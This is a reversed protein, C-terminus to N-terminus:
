SLRWGYPHRPNFHRLNPRRKLPKKDGGTHTAHISIHFLHYLFFYRFTAVRIPPTSQFSLASAHRCHRTRRWGYPHRPNFYTLGPGIIIRRGDGGTHTAHISIFRVAFLVDNRLTAVRIPPTSQFPIVRHGLIGGTTAVRIPPTSQFSSYMWIGLLWCLRWGYPHRPNFHAYISCFSWSANDGGTHTAHISIRPASSSQCTTMDGGTHTAHISIDYLAGNALQQLDGGTHTAHISIRHAPWVAAPIHDGGTHTAHISISVLMLAGSIKDDGGTHTAHISIQGRRSAHPQARDGGTHTAHISIIGIVAALRRAITAVRIPPTSQFLAAQTKSTLVNQRWGYPHRPNFNRSMTTAMEWHGDGGTHTAHISIKIRVRRAKEEAADGGTHTAHISIQPRMRDAPQSIDGGTHTAHISIFLRSGDLGMGGLRWGYPHRPNFDSLLGFFCFFGLRWGYPHRPNFDALSYRSLCAMPDGGTHTAHISILDIFRPRFARRTAVRIPPTSQFQLLARMM